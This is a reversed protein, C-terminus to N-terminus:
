KEQTIIEVIQKTKPEVILVQESVVAGEFGRLQPILTVVTAPLPETEVAEPVHAGVTAGFTAPAATSKHTQSTMSTFIVQRQDASLELKPLAAPDPQTTQARAALPSFSGLVLVTIGAALSRRLGAQM